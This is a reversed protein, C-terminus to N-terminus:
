ARRSRIFLIMCAVFFAAAMAFWQFAYGRHKAVWQDDIRAWERQLSAEIESEDDPALELVLPMLKLQMQGAYEDIPLFQWVQDKSVPYEDNWLPPKAAPRQLRGGLTVEGPATTFQPLVARSEGVGIWGRDVLVHWEKGPLTMPTLLRYGVKSDKVQNDIFISKDVLYTGTNMVQRYVYEEFDAENASFVLDSLPVSDIQARQQVQDLIQQKEVARGLQWYGLRIMSLCIILGFLLLTAKKTKTM